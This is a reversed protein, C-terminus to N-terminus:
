RRQAASALDHPGSPLYGLGDRVTAGWPALIAILEDFADGIAEIVPRM